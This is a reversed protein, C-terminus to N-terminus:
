RKMDSTSLDASSAVEFGDHEGPTPIAATRASRFSPFSPNNMPTATASVAIPEVAPKPAVLPHVGIPPVTPKTAPIATLDVVGKHMPSAVHAAAIGLAALQRTNEEHDMASKTDEDVVDFIPAGSDQRLEQLEGVRSIPIKYWHPRIGGVFLTGKYHFRQVAYGQRPAYPKVRVFATQTSM